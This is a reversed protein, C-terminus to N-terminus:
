RNKNKERTSENYLFILPYSLIHILFFPFQSDHSTEDFKLTHVIEGCGTRGDLKLDVKHAIWRGKYVTQIKQQIDVYISSSVTVEKVYLTNERSTVPRSIKGRFNTEAM